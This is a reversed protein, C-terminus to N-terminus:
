NYRFTVTAWFKDTDVAFADADYRAYELDLILRMPQGTLPVLDVSKTAKLNWEWGYHTGSNEATFDHVGASLVLDSASTEGPITYALNLSYDRLGTPPTTAFQDTVGNFGHVGGLPAQVANTGDSDLSEFGAAARFDGLTLSPVIRVYYLDFDAPNDSHDTQRAAELELGVGFDRNFRFRHEATLRAGLTNSSQGPLDDDLGVLYDYVAIRIDDFGDYAANFLHVNADLDGLPADDGIVRNVNAVWGYTLQLDDVPRTGAVVADFTQANQRFQNTDVFRGSELKLFQRGARINTQPLGRYNLYGQNLELVADDAVVPFRTRGDVGDDYPEGGVEGIHDVEGFLNFGHFAQTEYGARTRLTSAHADRSFGQQRVFEYRYRMDLSPRGATLAEVLTQSAAPAPGLVAIAAAVFAPVPLLSPNPANTHTMRRRAKAALRGRNHRPAPPIPLWGGTPHSAM